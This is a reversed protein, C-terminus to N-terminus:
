RARELADSLADVLVQPAVEPITAVEPLEGDPLPPSLVSVTAAILSRHHVAGSIRLGTRTRRQSLGVLKRGGLLVEGAGVGAFCVLEGWDGTRLPGDYVEVQAGPAILGTSSLADAWLWGAEVMSRRVDDAFVGPRGVLDIWLLEGPVMLVAGGGSRRTVLEVGRAALAETSAISDSQRSGLVLAPVSYDCWVVAAAVGADIGSQGILDAHHLEGATGVRHLRDIRWGDNSGESLGHAGAVPVLAPIEGRRYRCRYPARRRIADAFSVRSLRTDPAPSVPGAAVM